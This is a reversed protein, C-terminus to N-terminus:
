EGHAEVYRTREFGLGAKNYVHRILNEQAAVSPQTLAPSRGDQNTATSRVIVRVVDGQALAAAIPKIVLAVVGEGRAFGNAREDFSYCRSDASLFGQNALLASLEPSLLATTGM